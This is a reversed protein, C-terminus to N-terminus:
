RDTRSVRDIMWDFQPIQDILVVLGDPPRFFSYYLFVLFLINESYHRLATNKTKIKM